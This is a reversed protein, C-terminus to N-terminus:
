IHILSLRGAALSLAGTGTQIAALPNGLADFAAVVAQGAANTGTVVPQGASNVVLSDLGPMNTAGFSRVWQRVGGSGYKVLQVDLGAATAVHLLAYVNGSADLALERAHAAPTSGADVWLPQGSANLRAVLAGQAVGAADVVTGAIVVQGGADAVADFARGAVGAEALSHQWLLAGGPGFKHVMVPQATRTAVVLSNGAGDVALAPPIGQAEVSASWDPALQALALAPWALSVLVTTRLGSRSTAISM